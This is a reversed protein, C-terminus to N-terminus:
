FFLVAFPLCALPIVAFIDAIKIQLFANYSNSFVQANQVTYRGLRVSSLTPTKVQIHM